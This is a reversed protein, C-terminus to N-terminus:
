FDIICRAGVIEYSRSVIASGGAALDPLRDDVQGFIYNMQLRAHANWHWNLGLTVSQSIGGLIDHFAGINV